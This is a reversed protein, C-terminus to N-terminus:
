HFLTKRVPTAVNPHETKVLASILSSKGVGEIQIINTDSYLVHSNYQIGDGVLVIFVEKGRRM